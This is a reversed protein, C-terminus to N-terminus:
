EKPEPLNPCTKRYSQDAFYRRWEQRTLNRNAVRCAATMWSELKMDWLILTKGLGGSALWRGDPSFAIDQIFDNHGTLPQGILERTAVDWLFINQTSLGAGASASVLTEGDPSFVIKNMVSVSGMFPGGLPARSAVDWLRITGDFQGSASALTRGDPSFAVSRIEDRHGTLPQGLLERTAVDWLRIEGRSCLDIPEGDPSSTREIRACGSSALSKGDPSFVFSSVPRFVTSGEKYQHGPAIEGLMRRTEVNWLIINNGDSSALVQGDSSFALMKVADSHGTLPQSIIERADLRWLRIEGQTCKPETEANAIKACSGAALIKGDPSYALSSVEDSAGSLTGLPQQTATEWLHVKSGTCNYGDQCGGSALVKGDPSFAVSEVRLSPNQTILRSIPLRAATDWVSLDAEVCSGDPGFKRCSATAWRFTEPSFALSRTARSSYTTFYNLPASDVLSLKNDRTSFEVKRVLIRNESDASILTTGDRTFQVDLVQSEHHRM